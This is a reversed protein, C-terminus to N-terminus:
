STAATASRPSPRALTPDLDTWKLYPDVFRLMARGTRSVQFPERSLGLREAGLHDTLRGAWAEVSPGSPVARVDSSM